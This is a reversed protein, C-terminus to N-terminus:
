FFYYFYVFNYNGNSSLSINVNVNDEVSSCRDDDGTSSPCRSSSNNQTFQLDPISRRLKKHKMRRNQFWTKVTRAKRRRCQKSSITNIFPLLNHTGYENTLFEYVKQAYKEDNNNNPSLMSSKFEDKQSQIKSTVEKNEMYDKLLNMIIKLNNEYEESTKTVIMDGEQGSDEEDNIDQHHQNHNDILSQCLHDKVDREHLQQQQQHHSHNHHRHNHQEQLHHLFKTIGLKTKLFDQLDLPIETFNTCLNQTLRTFLSLKESNYNNLLQTITANTDTLHKQKYQVVVLQLLFYYICLMCSYSRLYNLKNAEEEEEKEGFSVRKNKMLKSLEAVAHLM